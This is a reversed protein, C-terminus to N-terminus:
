AGPVNDAIGGAYWGVVKKIEEKTILTSFEQRIVMFHNSQNIYLIIMLFLIMFFM